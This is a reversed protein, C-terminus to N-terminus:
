WEFPDTVQRQGLMFADAVHALPTLDVDNKATRVLDAMRAYLGVYEQDPKSALLVNDITLTAGGDSLLLSGEDCEVLIDWTQPGEQQWDLVM